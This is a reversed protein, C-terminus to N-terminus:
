TTGLKQDEDDHEEEYELTQREVDMSSPSSLPALGLGIGGRGIERGSKDFLESEAPIVSSTLYLPFLPM